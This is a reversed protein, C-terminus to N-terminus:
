AAKLDWTLRDVPNLALIGDCARQTHKHLCRHFRPSYSQDGQENHCAAKIGLGPAIGPRLDAKIIKLAKNSFNLVMPCLTQDIQVGEQCHTLLVSSYNQIGARIKAEFAKM